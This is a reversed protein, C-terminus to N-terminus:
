GSGPRGRRYGPATPPLPVRWRDGVRATSRCWELYAVVDSRDPVQDPRGYATVMRFAWLRGDPLPLHSPSSWWGPPALRRLAGLATWWLDPRTAAARAMTVVARSSPPTSGTAM